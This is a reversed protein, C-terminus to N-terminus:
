EYDYSIPKLDTVKFKAGHWLLGARQDNSFLIEGSLTNDPLPEVWAKIIEEGDIEELVKNGKFPVCRSALGTCYHGMLEGNPLIKVDLPSGEKLKETHEFEIIQDGIFLHWRSNIMAVGTMIGDSLVYVDKIDEIEKDGLREVIKNNIFVNTSGDFFKVTGILDGNPLLQVDYTQEISKGEIKELLNDQKFPLLQKDTTEIIGACIGNSLFYLDRVGKINKGGIQNILKEGIFILWDSYDSLVVEGALTNNDLPIFNCFQIPKDEIKEIIRNGIFPIFRLGKSSDRLITGTLEGNPMLTVEQIGVMPEKDGREIVSEGSFLFWFIKKNDDRINPPFKIDPYFAGALEGNPRLWVDKVKNIKMGAIEDFIEDGIFLLNKFGFDLRFGLVGALLGDQRFYLHSVFDIVKGGIKKIIENGYFLANRGDSLTIIGVKTNNPLATVYDVWAIKINHLKELNLIHNFIEGDIFKLRAGCNGCFKM